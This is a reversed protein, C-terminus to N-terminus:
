DKGGTDTDAVRVVWPLARRTPASLSYFSSTHTFCGADQSDQALGEDVGPDTLM